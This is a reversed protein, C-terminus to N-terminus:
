KIGWGMDSVLKILDSIWEQVYSLFVLGVLVVGILYIVLLAHLISVVTALNYTTAMDTVLIIIPLGILYYIIYSNKMINFVLASLVLKVFNRTQYKKVISNHWKEFNVKKTTIFFVGGMLIFFGILFLYITTYAGTISKGSRFDNGCLGGSCDVCSEDWIYTYAGIESTNCFSYNFTQGALHQMPSDIIFEQTSTEIISLDVSSCNSMVMINICDGPEVEGLYAGSFSILVIFSLFFLYSNLKGM